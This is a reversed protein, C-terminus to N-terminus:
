RSEDALKKAHNRAVDYMYNNAPPKGDVKYETALQIHKRALDPQKHVDYYLGLYLNAYFEQIAVLGKDPHDSQIANMVDEASKEGRFLGFIEMFPARPDAEIVIMNERAYDLGKAEANCLFEWVSNEVDNDHNTQYNQFQKAGDAFRGVYYLTIGREWLTNRFRPRLDILKDFDPPRSRCTVWVFISM